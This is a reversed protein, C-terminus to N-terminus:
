IKIREIEDLTLQDNRRDYLKTTRASEHGAMKQANELTGDNELYNTIGTARFTHCGIATKIGADAARRRIMRWADAQTMRRATLERKQGRATRFLPQKKQGELRAGHIYEDLIAELKHHAPLELVKDNKESLRIWWRKGQPYYDEVNMSLAADIRAFTYILVGILARDRLGVVHSTEISALLHRAEDETLIPTRGQKVVHKPGRVPAAPNTPVIQGVVLWDFLMRIVALHQKVTPKALSQGLEEIYAAVHVSRIRGLGLGRSGAWDFFHAANRFYAKRTNQNRINATFFEIFRYAAKEGARAITVPIPDFGPQVVLESPARVIIEGAM